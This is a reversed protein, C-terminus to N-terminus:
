SNLEGILVIKEFKNENLSAGGILAGDIDPQSLLEEANEENVSGGYQIRISNSLHDDYWQRLLKRIYQHVDIVQDPTANKGTGIAWVPEYAIIINAIERRSLGHLGQQMQTHIVFETQDTQREDLTEGICVIPILGSQLAKKIRYNVTKNTESFYKRRESHGIIVYQCGVSLLIKASIEGTFAGNEEWFLNQAGLGFGSNRIIEYIPNLLPFPPCFIVDCKRVDTLKELLSEALTIGAPLDMNMKWNGAIIKKRM